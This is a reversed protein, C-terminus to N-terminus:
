YMSATVKSNLMAIKQAMLATSVANKKKEKTRIVSRRTRRKRSPLSDPERM